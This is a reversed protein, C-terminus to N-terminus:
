VAARYDAGDEVGDDSTFVAETADGAVWKTLTPNTAIEARFSDVNAM